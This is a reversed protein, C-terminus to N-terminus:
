FLASLPSFPFVELHGSIALHGIERSYGGYILARNHYARVEITKSGPVRTADKACYEICHKVSRAPSLHVPSSKGGLLDVMAPIMQARTKLSKMYVFGQVHVRQTGEGEELQFISYAVSSAVDGTFAFPTPFTAEFLALTWEVGGEMSNSTFAWSKSRAPEYEPDHFKRKPM